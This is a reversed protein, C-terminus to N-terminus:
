AASGWLLGICQRVHTHVYVCAILMKREEKVATKIKMHRFVWAQIIIVDINLPQM